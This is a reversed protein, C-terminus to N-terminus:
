TGDNLIPRPGTGGPPPAVPRQPPAFTVLEKTPHKKIVSDLGFRKAAAVGDAVAEALTKDKAILYHYNEVGCIARHLYRGTAYWPGWQAKPKSPDQHWVWAYPFTAWGSTYAHWPEFRRIDMKGNREWSAHFLATAAVISNQVVPEYEAPDKSVTRYKSEISTGIDDAPINIELVGCDRSTTKGNEDENDNYAGVFGQSEAFIVATMKILDDGSWGGACVSVFERPLLQKGLLYGM